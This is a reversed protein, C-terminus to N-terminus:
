ELQELNEREVSKTSFSREKTKTIKQIAYDSLTKKRKLKKENGTENQTNLHSYQRGSFEDMWGDRNETINKKWYPSPKEIQIAHAPKVNM